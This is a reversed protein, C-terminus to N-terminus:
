RRTMMTMSNIQMYLTFTERRNRNRARSDHDRPVTQYHTRVYTTLTTLTATITNFLLRGSLKVGRMGEHSSPIQNNNNLIM